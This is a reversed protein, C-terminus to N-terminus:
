ELKLESLKAWRSDPAMEHDHEAGSENLNAACIPCLGACDPRCLIQEPAGLVFADHAWAALDLTDGNVYPSALEEGGGPQDIERSDVAVSPAARELCRMCAGTIRAAFRLRLAYGNHNMRSVDLVLDVRPPAATYPEGGLLLPAIETSLDLRRGDGSSLGLGSLDFLYAVASTM